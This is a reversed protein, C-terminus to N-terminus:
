SGPETTPAKRGPRRRPWPGGRPRPGTLPQQRRHSSQRPEVPRLNPPDAPPTRLQARDPRCTPSLDLSVLHCGSKFWGRVREVPDSVDFLHSCRKGTSRHIKRDPVGAVRHGVQYSGGQSFRVRGARVWRRDSARIQPCSHGAPGVPAEAHVKVRTLYPCTYSGLFENRAKGM